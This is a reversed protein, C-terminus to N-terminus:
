PTETVSEERVTDGTEPLPPSAAVVAQWMANLWREYLPGQKYAIEMSLREGYALGKRRVPHNPDAMAMNHTAQRELACELCTRPRKPKIVRDVPKGCTVCPGIYHSM